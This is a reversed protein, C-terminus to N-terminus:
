DSLRFVKAEIMEIHLIWPARRDFIVGLYKANNVSPIARGNLTLHSEPPRRSRSFNRGRTKDENMKINWREYMCPKWQASFASSIELLLVRKALQWMCVSTTNPTRWKYVYQFFCPVPGFRTAGRSANGKANVNRRRDFTKINKASSFLWSAQDLQELIEIQIAEIALWLAIRCWLSEWHGLVGPGYVNYHRVTVHVSVLSVQMLFVEKM